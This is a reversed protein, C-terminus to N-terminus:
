DKSLGALDESSGALRSSSARNTVLSEDAQRGTTITRITSTIREAVSARGTKWVMEAAARAEASATPSDLLAVLRKCRDLFQGRSECLVAWDGHRILYLHLNHAARDWDHNAHGPDDYGLCLAPLGHRAGEMVMTSFPSILADASALLDPYLDLETLNRESRPALMVHRYQSPNFPKESVRVFRLPHPKYVVLLNRPLQGTEIAGDIEELLSVEEFPVGAGCFLLMRRDVPLNLRTRAEERSIPRRRYIEFRPSGIVFIRHSPIGHMLRAILFGQEGWVGLYPPTEFFAKTNLCDWNNMSALLPLRCREAERVVDDVFYSRVSTYALIAVANCGDPILRPTTARLMARLVISSPRALGVVSLWGVLGAVKASVGFTALGLTNRRNLEFRRKVAMHWLGSAVQYIVLRWRGMAHRAVIPGYRSLDLTLRDTSIFALRFEKALDDLVGSDVFDRAAYDHMLAILLLPKDALLM